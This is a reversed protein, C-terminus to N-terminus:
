RKKPTPIRVEEVLVFIGGIGEEEDTEKEKNPVEERTVRRDVGGHGEESEKNEVVSNSEKHTETKHNSVKDFAM